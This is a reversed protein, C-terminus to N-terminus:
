TRPTAVRQAWTQNPHNWGTSHRGTGKWNWGPSCSLSADSLIKTSTIHDYFETFEAEESNRANRIMQIIQARDKWSGNPNVLDQACKLNRNSLYIAIKMLTEETSKFSREYLTLVQNVTAMAPVSGEYFKFELSEKSASWGKLMGRVTPSGSVTIDPDLLLGDEVTWHKREKKANGTRLTQQIFWRAIVTWEIQRGRLLQSVNRM